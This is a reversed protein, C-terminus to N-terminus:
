ATDKRSPERCADACCQGLFASARRAVRELLAANVRYCSRPPRAEIEILGAQALVKIHQSITSQALPLRTTIDKCCCGRHGAVHRLIALRVPNSLAAFADALEAGDATQGSKIAGM